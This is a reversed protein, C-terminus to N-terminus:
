MHSQASEADLIMATVDNSEVDISGTNEIRPANIDVVDERTVESCAYFNLTHRSLSHNLGVLTVTSQAPEM